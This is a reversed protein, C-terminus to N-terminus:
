DEKMQRPGFLVGLLYSVGLRLPGAVRSRSSGQSRWTWISSLAQPKQYQPVLTRSQCRHHPIAEAEPLNVHPCHLNSRAIPDGSCGVTARMFDELLHSVLQQFRGAPTTLIHFASLHQQQTLPVATPSGRCQKTSGHAIRADFSM